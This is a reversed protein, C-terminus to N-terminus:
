GPKLASNIFTLIGECYDDVTIGRSKFKGRKLYWDHLLPKIMSAVQDAKLIKNYRGQQQGITIIETLKSEISLETQAAYVRHKKDLNKTELFAFFFWPKMFESLYVHAKIIKELPEKKSHEEVKLIIEMCFQNLFKHILLALHQKSQIYSYLGGMSLGTEKSLERLSMNAFSQNHSLKFTANVIKALKDIAIRENKIKFTEEFTLYFKTFLEKKSPKYDECFAAYTM